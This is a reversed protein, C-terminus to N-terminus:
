RKLQMMADYEIQRNSSLYFENAAPHNFEKGVEKELATGPHFLVELQM